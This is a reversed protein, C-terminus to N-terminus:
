HDDITTVVENSKRKGAHPPWALGGPGEGKAARIVRFGGVEKEMCVPVTMTNVALAWFPDLELMRVLKVKVELLGPTTSMALLPAAQAPV